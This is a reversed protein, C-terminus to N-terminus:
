RNLLIKRRANRTSGGVGSNLKQKILRAREAAVAILAQQMDHCIEVFANRKEIAQEDIAHGAADAVM